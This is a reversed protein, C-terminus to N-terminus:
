RPRIEGTGSQTGAAKRRHTRPNFDVTVTVPDSRSRTFWTALKLKMENAQGRENAMREQDHGGM